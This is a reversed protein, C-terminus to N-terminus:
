PEIVEAPEYPDIDLQQLAEPCRQTMVRTQNEYRELENQLELFLQTHQLSVPTETPLAEGAARAEILRKTAPDEGVQERIEEIRKEFYARREERFENLEALCNKDPLAEQSCAPTAMALLAFALINSSPKM